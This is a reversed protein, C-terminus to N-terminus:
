HKREERANEQRLYSINGWYRKIISGVLWLTGYVLISRYLITIVRAGALASAVITVTICCIMLGTLFQRLPLDNVQFGAKKAKAM